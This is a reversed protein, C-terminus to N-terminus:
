KGQRNESMKNTKVLINQFDFTLKLIVVVFDTMSSPSFGSKSNAGISWLHVKTM